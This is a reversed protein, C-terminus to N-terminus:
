LAICQVGFRILFASLYSHFKFQMSHMCGGIGRPNLCNSGNDSTLLKISLQIKVFLLSVRCSYFSVAQVSILKQVIASINPPFCLSHSLRRLVITRYKSTFEYCVFLNTDMWSLFFIFFLSFFFNLLFPSAVIVIPLSINNM